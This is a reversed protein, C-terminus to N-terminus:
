SCVASSIAVHSSNLRTSKRDRGFRSRARIVLGAITKDDSTTAAHQHELLKFVGLRTSCFDIGFQNAVTGGGVALVHHRGGALPSHAAHTLGHGGNVTVDVIDVGM